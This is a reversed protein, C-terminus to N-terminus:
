HSSNTGTIRTSTSSNMGVNRGASSNTGATRTGMSSNTGATRIGMSSNTGATRNDMSSNTGATRTGMSSNTGATRTGMSSNTGATRIGMSSNTGATRNDMSSNTGATRTGMSSNTGATRTGMSSNTGATRDTTSTNLKSSKKLCEENVVKQAEKIEEDTYGAEKLAAKRKAGNGWKGALIETAIEKASLKSTKTNKLNIEVKDKNLVDKIAETTAKANKEKNSKMHIGFLAGFASNLLTHEGDMKADNGIFLSGTAEYIKEVLTSTIPSEEFSKVVKAKTNEIEQAVWANFGDIDKGNLGDSLDMGIPKLFKENIEKKTEEIFPSTLGEIAGKLNEIGTEIYKQTKIIKGEVQTRVNIFEQKQKNIEDLMAKLFNVLEKMSIVRKILEAAQTRLTLAIDKSKADETLDPVSKKKKEETEPDIYEEDKYHPCASEEIEAKAELKKAQEEDKNEQILATETDSDMENATIKLSEIISDIVNKDWKFM